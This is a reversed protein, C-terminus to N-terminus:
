PTSTRARRVHYITTLFYTHVTSTTIPHYSRACKYPIPPSLDTDNTSPGWLESVRCHKGLVYPPQRVAPAGGRNLPLM